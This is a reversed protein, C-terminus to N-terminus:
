YKELVTLLNKMKTVWQRHTHITLNVMKKEKGLWFNFDGEELEAEARDIEKIHILLRENLNEIYPKLMAREYLYLYALRRLEWGISEGKPEPHFDFDMLCRPYHMKKRVPEIWTNYLDIFRDISKEKELEGSVNILYTYGRYLNDEPIWNMLDLSGSVGSFSLEGLLEDFIKEIEDYIVYVNLNIKAFVRHKITLEELVPSIRFINKVGKPTDSAYFRDDEDLNGFAANSKMLEYIVRQLTDM